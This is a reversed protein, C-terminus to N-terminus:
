GTISCSNPIASQAMLRELATIDLCKEEDSATSSSAASSGAQNPCYKGKGYESELGVRLKTLEKQEVPNTPAPITISLRLLMLKRAVDPPLQIGRYKAAELAYKTSLATGEQEADAAIAETDDTIFNSQVWDARNGKVAVDALQKEADAAFKEADAATPRAAATSKQASPAQKGAPEQGLACVAVLLLAAVFGASVFVCSGFTHSESVRSPM